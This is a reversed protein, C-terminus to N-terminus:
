ESKESAKKSSLSKDTVKSGDNLLQFYDVRRKGTQLIKYNDVLGTRIRPSICALGGTYVALYTLGFAKLFAICRSFKKNESSVQVYSHGNKKVIKNQNNNSVTKSAYNNRFVRLAM